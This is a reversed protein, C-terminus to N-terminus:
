TGAFEAGARVEAEGFHPLQHGGPGSRRYASSRGIRRAGHIIRDSDQTTIPASSGHEVAWCAALTRYALQETAVLAPWLREAAVRQRASGGIAAEYAALMGIACVQLDRRDGRARTTAVAVSALHRVTM